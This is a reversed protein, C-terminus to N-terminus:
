DIHLCFFSDFSTDEAKNIYLFKFYFQYIYRNTSSCFWLAFQLYLQDFYEYQEVRQKLDVLLPKVLPTIIPTPMGLCWFVFLILSTSFPSSSIELKFILLKWHVEYQWYTIIHADILAEIAKTQNQESPLFIM